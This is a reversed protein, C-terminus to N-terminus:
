IILMKEDVPAYNFKSGSKAGKRIININPIILSMIQKGTWLPKPKIVAPMPLQRM